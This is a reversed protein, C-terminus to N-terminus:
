TTKANIFIASLFNVQDTMNKRAAFTEATEMPCFTWLYADEAYFIGTFIAIIPFFIYTQLFCYDAIFSILQPKM